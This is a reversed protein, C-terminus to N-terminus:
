LAPHDNPHPSTSPSTRPPLVQLLLAPNDATKRPTRRPLWRRVPPTSSQLPSRQGTVSAGATDATYVTGHWYRAAHWLSWPQASVARFLLVCAVTHMDPEPYHRQYAPRGRCGPRDLNPSQVMPHLAMGMCKANHQNSLINPQDSM